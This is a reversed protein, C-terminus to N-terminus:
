LTTLIIQKSMYHTLVEFLIKLLLFFPNDQTFVNIKSDKHNIPVNLWKDLGTILVQDIFEIEEEGNLCTSVFDLLIALHDPLDSFPSNYNFKKFIDLMNSLFASRFYSEGFLYYGMYLCNTTNWDFTQSFIEELDYVTVSDLSLKLEQILINIEADELNELQSKLSKIHDFFDKSPYTFLYHFTKLLKKM